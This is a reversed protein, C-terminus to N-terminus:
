GVKVPQVEPVAADSVLPDDVTVHTLRFPVQLQVGEINTIPDDGCTHHNTFLVVLAGFLM